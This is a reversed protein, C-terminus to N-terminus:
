EATFAAFSAFEGAIMGAALCDFPIDANETDPLILRVNEQLNSDVMAICTCLRSVRILESEPEEACMWSLGPIGVTCSVLSVGYLAHLIRLLLTPEYVDPHSEAEFAMGWGDPQAIGDALTLRIALQLEPAAVRMATFCDRILRTRDDFDGGFPSNFLRDRHFAALSEGFLNRDAANLAAASFGAQQALKAANGCTVILERLAEDSIVQAGEPALPTPEMICPAAADKGAHELLLVIQPAFGHAQEAAQTIQSVLASFAGATQANLMLQRADRRGEPCLAAPGVWVQAYPRARVAACCRAATAETPTGNEDADFVPKIQCIMRNPLRDATSAEPMELAATDASLPLFVGTERAQMQLASLTTEEM